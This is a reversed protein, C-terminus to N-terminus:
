SISNYVGWIYLVATSWSINISLSESLLVIRPDWIEEWCFNDCDIIILVGLLIAISILKKALKSRAYILRVARLCCDKM